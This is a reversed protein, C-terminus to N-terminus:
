LVAETPSVLLQRTSLRFWVEREAGQLVQPVQLVQQVQPVQLDQPVAEAEVSPHGCLHALTRM